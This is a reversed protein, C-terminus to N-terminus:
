RIKTDITFQQGNWLWHGQARRETRTCQVILNETGGWCDPFDNQSSGIHNRSFIFEVTVPKGDADLLTKSSRTTCDHGHPCEASNCLKERAAWAAEQFKPWGLDHRGYCDAAFALPFLYCLASFTGLKM